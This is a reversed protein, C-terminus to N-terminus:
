MRESIVPFRPPLPCLKELWLAYREARNPQLTHTIVLTVHTNQAMVLEKSFTLPLNGQWLGSM